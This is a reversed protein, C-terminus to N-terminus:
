LLQGNSRAPASTDLETPELWQRMRQAHGIRSYKGVSDLLVM